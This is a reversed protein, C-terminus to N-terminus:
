RAGRVRDEMRDQKMEVKSLRGSVSHEVKEIKGQLEEVDKKTSMTRLIEDLKAEMNAVKTPRVSIDELVEEARRKVQKTRTSTSKRAAQNEAINARFDEPTEGARRRRARPFEPKKSGPPSDSLIHVEEEEEEESWEM